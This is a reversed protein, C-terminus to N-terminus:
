FAALFNLVSAFSVWLLYPVLLWAAKKDIKYSAYIMLLITIWMVVIEYFAIQLLRAGFFLYCWLVNLVFNSGYSMWIYKMKVKPNLWVLFLSIAILVYLITWAIPFVYNPPTISPKISQYWADNVGMSTFVNGLVAVAFIILFSVIFKCLGTKCAWDAGASASKREKVARKM